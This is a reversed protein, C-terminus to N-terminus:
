LNQQHPWRTAFIDKKKTLDASGVVNMELHFHHQQYTAPYHSLNSVRDNSFLLVGFVLQETGGL